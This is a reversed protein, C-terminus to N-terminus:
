ELEVYDGAFIEERTTTLLVTSSNPGTRLVIGEGMVQRPLNDWTYVVPTSGFGYAQYATKKLQYIAESHSGQYRFVRFYSGVQVGQTSGLNVFVITGAGSTQTYNKGVVIMATKKGSPPAFIDFKVEHFVPAVREKLPLIIDGRQVMDCSLKIETTSTKSQVSVVHLIGIGAYRTGMAKDLQQQWKFWKNPMLDHVPRIVEFEDGVKVGQGGGQNIYVLDGPHFSIKFRSDEGSIIYADGPPAQDTYVGSCYMEEQSPTKPNHQAGAVGAWMAIGLGVRLGLSLIRYSLKVHM